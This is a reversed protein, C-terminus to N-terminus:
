IRIQRKGALGAEIGELVKSMGGLHEPHNLAVRAAREVVGVQEASMTAALRVIGLVKRDAGRVIEVAEADGRGSKELLVDYEIDLMSAIVRLRDTSPPGDEGRELRSLYTSSIGCLIACKRVSLPKGTGDHKRLRAEKLFHGFTARVDASQDM